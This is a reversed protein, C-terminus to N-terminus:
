WWHRRFYRSYRPYPMVEYLRAEMQAPQPLREVISRRDLTPYQDNLFDRAGAAEAHDAIVSAVVMRGYRPSDVGFRWTGVHTIVGAEVSFTMDLNAMSMFPGESIQVRNLRYKGSPLDIAFHQDPSEIEVQFRQQSDQDELELFRMQPLYRRSREGTLVTIVRGVVLSSTVQDQNVPSPLETACSSIGLVLAGLLGGRFMWIKKM